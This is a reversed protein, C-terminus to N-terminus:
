IIYSLRTVRTSSKTTNTLTLPLKLCDTQGWLVPSRWSAGWSGRFSCVSWHFPEHSWLVVENINLWQLVHFKLSFVSAGRARWEKNIVESFEITVVMVSRERVFPSDSCEHVSLRRYTIIHHLVWRLSVVARPLGYWGVDWQFQFGHWPLFLFQWMIWWIINQCSAYNDKSTKRGRRENLQHALAM